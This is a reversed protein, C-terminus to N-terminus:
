LPPTPPLNGSAAVMQRAEAPSLEVVKGDIWYVLTNNYREAQEIARWASAAVGQHLLPILNEPETKKM